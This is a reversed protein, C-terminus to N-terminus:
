VTEGIRAIEGQQRPGSVSVNRGDSEVRFGGPLDVAPVDGVLVALLDRFREQTLEQQPASLAALASRLTVAALAPAAKRLPAARLVIRGPSRKRVARKLLAEALQRITQEAEGAAEALRLVAEDARPNLRRRILPLLENRIFNRTFDSNLNTRDTRWALGQERCFQEIQERRAWLLPRVLTLGGPLPRKPPMGSLGRLHTGRFIRQLVTEVQDDAHHAVAVASAGCRRAMASLAEYRGRRAAEEVSASWRRALEAADIRELWFALGWRGALERVFEADAEAEARLGHHVHGLHLEYGGTRRLAEALAVSDAGGSVGVLVAQGARLMEHRALFGETRAIFDEARDM